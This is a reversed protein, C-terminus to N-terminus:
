ISGAEWLDNAIGGERSRGIVDLRQNSTNGLYKAVTSDGGCQTLPAQGL